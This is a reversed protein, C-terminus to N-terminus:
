AGSESVRFFDANKWSFNRLAAAML